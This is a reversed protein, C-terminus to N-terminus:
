RDASAADVTRATRSPVLTETFRALYKMNSDTGSFGIVNEDWDLRKSIVRGADIDFKIEGHSLQQVLQSKLRADQIPTLVQTRVSITAVGTKVKELRYQLRTKVQKISGDRQRLRMRDPVTWTHGLPVKGTPLPVVLGGFGLDPHHAKNRRAIIKGARDITVVALPEGLSSAVHDYEPPAMPDTQSNYRVEQRGSTKQWMDVDEISHVFSMQQDTVETVTWAKTSASRSKTEQSNGAIRTDVTALHEVRYRITEGPTFQYHLNYAEPAAESTARDREAALEGEAGLGPAACLSLLTCFNFFRRYSM